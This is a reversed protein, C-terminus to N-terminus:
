YRTVCWQTDYIYIYMNMDRERSIISFIEGLQKFGERLHVRFFPHRERNLFARGVLQVLENFFYCDCFKVPRTYRVKPADRTCWERNHVLWYRSQTTRLLTTPEGCATWFNKNEWKERARRPVRDVRHYWEDDKREEEGKRKKCERERERERAWLSM